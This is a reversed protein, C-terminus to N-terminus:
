KGTGYATSLYDIITKADEENIPAGMVKIMKNVEATWTARPFAPQMTIYRLTHCTSCLSSVKDLGPGPNLQVQIAPLEISHIADKDQGKVLLPVAMLIVIMSIILLNRM